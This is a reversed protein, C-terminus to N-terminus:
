FTGNQSLNQGGTTYTVRWTDGSTPHVTGTSSTQAAFIRNTAAGLTQGANLTYTYTITSSTSANSQTIQGGVTNYQGSFSVGTTRQIVITVTLATILNTNALRVQLENFWPSNSAVTPTVTVGGNNTTNTVTLSLPATRTLGGGSCSVTVTVPGGVTATSSATFTSTISNGTTSAPSFSPTVGSPQGTASCSISSTLNSRTINITSTGSAGRNVTLSTPNLSIAFNPTGATPTASAQNSNPSEGNGNVASVVFFYTTGNTLGTNLFSPTTSTGALTYPGGSVTARKVNYSTAGAVANWNLQVQANGSTATLGTPASLTGGLENLMATYAPKPQYNMDFPLADGQPPNTFTSPVWSFKDTFGWTVLAACRTLCFRMVDGYGLAQQQLENSDTPLTIRIDMETVTLELGLNLFRAANTENASSIRFPNVKHMQWGVGDILGQNRLGSVINFAADAKAGPQEIEYDNYYLKANPDAQRAFQFAMTIYEPGIKQSWFTSRMQGNNDSVAENVVDWAVVKGAFHQMVTTIHDQMIAIVQDRTFNGNLLWGPIQNHWILVHGRVKMNNAQAFAVLADAAAFNYTNQAPHLADFKMANEAVLMNYERSLTPRYNTENPDNFPTLNVAAGVSLGRNSAANRLQAGAQLNFLPLVLLGLFWVSIQKIWSRM